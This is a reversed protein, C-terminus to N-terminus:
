TAPISRPRTSRPAGAVVHHAEGPRPGEAHDHGQVGRRLRGALAPGGGQSQKTPVRLTMKEHDFGIVYVELATGAVEQTEVAVIRGVGHAPYVVHDSVAFSDASLTM